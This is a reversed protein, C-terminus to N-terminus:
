LHVLKRFGLIVGDSNLLSLFYMGKPLDEFSLTARGDMLDAFQILRGTADSVRVQTLESSKTEIELTSLFPNPFIKTELIDRDDLGVPRCNRRTPTAFISDGLFITTFDGSQGLSWSAPDDQSVTEDCMKISYGTGNAGTPWFPTNRYTFSDILIASNWIQIQGSQNGLTGSDWGIAPIIPGFVRDITNPYRAVVISQLSPLSIEPILASISGAIRMGGLEVAVNNRNFIEIFELSDDVSPDDYMIESVRLFPVIFNNVVEFSDELMANCALDQVGSVHIMEFQGDALPSTLMLIISDPTMGLSASAITSGNASFNDLWTSYPAVSESFKIGIRNYNSLSASVITPAQTDVSLCCSNPDAFLQIGHTFLGPTQSVSWNAGNSNDLSRDCFTLSYGDGNGQTPWPAVNGYFVSDVTVGNGDKLVIAEGLNSLNGGSFSALNQLSGFYQQMASGLRCPIIYEGPNITIAAFGFTVGSLTYGTLDIPANTNNFIEIYELSDTAGNVAPSRYMIETIMLQGKVASAGMGFGLLLLLLTISKRMNLFM